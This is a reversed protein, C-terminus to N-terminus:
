DESLLNYLMSLALEASQKIIEMRSGQLHYLTTKLKDDCAAAIWVTGVPKEPTGGGPGAIGSTAVACSTSLLRKVGQVMQIAVPESVAGYQQLSENTVGLVEQKVQNSYSVIGGTFYASSGPVSTILHAIRGGTCSEATSMTMGKELLLKGIKEEIPIVTSYNTMSKCEM